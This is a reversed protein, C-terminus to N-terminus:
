GRSSSKQGSSFRGTLWRLALMMARRIGLQRLLDLNDSATWDEAIQGDTFRSITIGKLTVGRGRHTGHMTWRSTVLDGETVQGDVEIRLDPFIARYLGVSELIGELGRFELGNVHDVFDLSYLERAADFDGRACVRELARRANDSQEREPAKISAGKM